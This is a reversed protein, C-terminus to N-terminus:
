LTMVQHEFRGYVWGPNITNTCLKNSLHEVVDVSFPLKDLITYHVSYNHSFHDSQLHLFRLMLFSM